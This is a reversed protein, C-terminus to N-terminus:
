ILWVRWMLVAFDLHNLCLIYLTCHKLRPCLRVRISGQFPLLHHECQSTFSLAVSDTEEGSEHSTNAYLPTSDRDRGSTSALLHQVYRIPTGKLDQWTQALADAM